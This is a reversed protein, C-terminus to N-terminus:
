GTETPAPGHVMRDLLDLATPTHQDYWELYDVRYTGTPPPPDLGHALVPIRFRLERV